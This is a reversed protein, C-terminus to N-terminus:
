TQSPASSAVGHTACAPPAVPVATVLFMTPPCILYPVPLLSLSSPDRCDGAGISPPVITESVWNAGFLVLLALATLQVGEMAGRQPTYLLVAPTRVECWFM